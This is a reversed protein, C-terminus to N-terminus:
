AACNRCLPAYPVADLREASIEEGCQVCVGFSGDEIRKLAATIARAEKLGEQGMEELVEDGERETAAEDWNTSVPEDLEDDIHHLRVDLEKLRAELKAKYGAIDTM